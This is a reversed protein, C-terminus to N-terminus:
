KDESLYFESLTNGVCRNFHNCVNMVINVVTIVLYKLSKPKRKDDKTLFILCKENLSLSWKQTSTNATYHYHWSGMHANTWTGAAALSAGQEHAQPFFRIVWASPVRYSMLSVQFFSWGGQKMGATETEGERSTYTLQRELLPFLIKKFIWTSGLIMKGIICVRPLLVPLSQRTLGQSKGKGNTVTM